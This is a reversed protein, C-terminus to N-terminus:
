TNQGLFEVFKPDLSVKTYRLGLYIHLFHFLNYYILINNLYIERPTGFNMEMQECYERYFYTLFLVKCLGFFLSPIYSNIVKKTICTYFTLYIKTSQGKLFV